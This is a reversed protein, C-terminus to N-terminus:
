VQHDGLLECEHFGASKVRIEHFESLGFDHFGASKM